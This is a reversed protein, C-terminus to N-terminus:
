RDDAPRRLRDRQPHHRRHRGDVTDCAARPRHRHLRRPREDGDSPRGARPFPAFDRRRLDDLAATTSVPLGKHSDCAARRPRAHAQHGAPGRRGDPGRCRGAITAVAEPSNGYARDGIIDHSGPSPVDLVPACDVNIGVEALDHAILAGSRPSPRGRATSGAMAAALQTPPGTRRAWASCGPRGGSRDPDAGRGPGVCDRLAATLRPGGRAHRHQAQVPHLGLAACGSFPRRRRPSPRAPAASILARSTMPDREPRLPRSRPRIAHTLTPRGSRANLARIRRRPPPRGMRLHTHGDPGGEAREPTAPAPASGDSSRRRTGVVAIAPAPTHARSLEQGRFM